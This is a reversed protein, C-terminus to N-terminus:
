RSDMTAFQFNWREVVKQAFTLPVREKVNNLDGVKLSL